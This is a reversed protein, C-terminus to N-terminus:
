RATQDSRPVQPQIDNTAASGSALATTAARLRRVEELRGAVQLATTTLHHSFGAQLWSQASGSKRWDTAREAIYRDGASFETGFFEPRDILLAAWANWQGYGPGDENLVGEGRLVFYEDEITYRVSASFNPVAVPERFVVHQIAYDGFAPRRGPWSALSQWQQWEFRQIRNTTGPALRSLDEPFSGALVTLTRWSQIWPIYHAFEQYTVSGSDVGGRDIILDTIAPRAAYANLCARIRDNISSLKLEEPSIRLCLGAGHRSLASRVYRSYTSHLGTKLSIVTVPQTRLSAIRGVLLEIAQPHSSRVMDCDVFVSRGSWDALHAAIHELRSELRALTDCGRLVRPPCELLPSIRSRTGSDLARLARLEAPKARMVPVYHQHGFM